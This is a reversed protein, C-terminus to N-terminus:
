LTYADSTNSDRHVCTITPEYCETVYVFAFHELEEHFPSIIVKLFRVFKHNPHSWMLWRYTIKTSRRCQGMQEGGITNRQVGWTTHNPPGCPLTSLHTSNSTSHTLDKHFYPIHAKMRNSMEIWCRYKHLIVCPSKTQSIFVM